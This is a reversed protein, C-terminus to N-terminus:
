YKWMSYVARLHIQVSRNLFFSSQSRKVLSCGTSFLQCNILKSISPPASSALGGQPKMEADESDHGLALKELSSVQREDWALNLLLQTV